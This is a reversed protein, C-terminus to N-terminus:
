WTTKVKRPIQEKLDTATTPLHGFMSTAEAEAPRECNGKCEELVDANHCRDWLTLGLIIQLCRMQFMTLKRIDKQMVPWTETGYLFIPMVMTRFVLVKTSKSLIQSRFIKCRLIQYVTSGKKVRMAVEKEVMTSQGTESGLYPFSEVKELAQYQLVISPHETEQQEGM